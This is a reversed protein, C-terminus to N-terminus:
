FVILGRALEGAALARFAENADDLGYRRTILEDVRLKGALYLTVLRPLDERTRASGYSCGRIVREAVVLPRVDLPVTAGTEPVGILVCTGGPALAECAQAVARTDGVAVFTYDAGLRTIRRIAAVADERSADVTHSAGLARAHELKAPKVDVAIIPHAAVLAGGQVVNLGVGGVGFVAMSAGPAVAATNIVAGVGTMVSCGILAARDLPMTKDIRIACSEHVVTSSAYTAVHGYHHVPRGRLSMRTTGDPLVGRGPQRAECLNPRGIVCYHCRGCTPAWSLIVHDGVALADVAPGVEEVVGAGEDGLVIPVPVGKWSGDAAHLCSHCVGSAAMRVRVEGTRPAELDLDEVQLPKGQEFLVSARM